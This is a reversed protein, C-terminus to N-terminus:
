VDDGRRDRTADMEKALIARLYRWRREITSVSSGMQEAIESVTFGAFYRLLVIRHGDPDEERIRQLAFELALIDEAPIEIEFPIEEMEVRRLNGGRKRRLRRRAQEVIIDHMARAALFYYEGRNRWTLDRRGVLRLYAEHVLATPQLTQGPPLKAM